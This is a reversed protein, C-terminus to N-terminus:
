LDCLFSLKVEIVVPLGVPSFDIYMGSEDTDIPCEPFDIEVIFTVEGTSPINECIATEREGDSGMCNSFYKFHVTNTSLSKEIEM